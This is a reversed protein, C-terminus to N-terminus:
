HRPDRSRHDKGTTAKSLITRITCEATIADVHQRDESM